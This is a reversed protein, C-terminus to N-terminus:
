NEVETICGEEFGDTSRKIQNSKWDSLFIWEVIM